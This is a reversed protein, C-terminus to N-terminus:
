NQVLPGAESYEKVAEVFRRESALAIGSEHHEAAASRNNEWMSAATDASSTHDPILPFLGFRRAQQLKM